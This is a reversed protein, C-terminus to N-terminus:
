VDRVAALLRTVKLRAEDTLVYEVRKVRGGLDHRQVMGVRMLEHLNQLIVKKSAGPLLRRIQSLRLPGYEILGLIPIRWKGRFVTELLIEAKGVIVPPPPYGTVFDPNTRSFAVHLRNSVPDFPGDTYENCRDTDDPPSALFATDAQKM